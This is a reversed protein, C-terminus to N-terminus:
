ISIVANTNPLFLCQGNLLFLCLAYSFYVFVENFPFYRNTSRYFVNTFEYIFITFCKECVEILLKKKKADLLSSERSNEHHLNYRTIRKRDFRKSTEM